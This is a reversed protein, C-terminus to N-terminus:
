NQVEIKEFLVSPFELEYWSFNVRIIEIQIWEELETSYTNIVEWIPEQKFRIKDGTEM